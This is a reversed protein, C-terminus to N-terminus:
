DTALKVTQERIVALAGVIRAQVQLWADGWTTIPYPIGLEALASPLEARAGSHQMARRIRNSARLIRLAESVRSRAEEDGRYEFLASMREFTHSRDLKRSQAPLLNDEIYFSKLTDSLVTIRDSFEDQSAPPAGLRATAAVGPPRVLRSRFALRWAIDLSDLAEPLAMASVAPSAPEPNTEIAREWCRNGGAHCQDPSSIADLGLDCEAGTLLRDRTMSTLTGIVEPNVLHSCLYTTDPLKCQQCIPRSTPALRRVGHSGVVTEDHLGAASCLFERGDRIQYDCTKDHLTAELNPIDFDSLLIESVQDKPPLVGDQLGREIVQVSYRVFADSFVERWDTGEQHPQEIQSVLTDSMLVTITSRERDGSRHVRFRQGYADRSPDDMESVYSLLYRMSRLSPEQGFSRTIKGSGASHKAPRLQRLPRVSVKTHASSHRSATDKLRRLVLELCRGSSGGPFGGATRTGDRKEKVGFFLWGGYHNAFASLSKGISALDPPAQKYEVHWGEAVDRLRGLDETALEKLRKGFPNYRIGDM